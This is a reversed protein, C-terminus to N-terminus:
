KDREIFIWDINQIVNAVNKQKLKRVLYEILSEILFRQIMSVNELDKAAMGNM